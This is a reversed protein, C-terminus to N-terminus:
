SRQHRNSIFNTCFRCILILGFIYKGKINETKFVGAVYQEATSNNDKVTVTYYGNPLTDLNLKSTSLKTEIIAESINSINSDNIADQQTWVIDNPELQM